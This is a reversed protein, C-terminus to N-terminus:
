LVRSQGLLYGKAVYPLGNKFRVKVGDITIAEGIFRYGDGHREIHQSACCAGDMKRWRADALGMAEIRRMVGGGVGNELFGASKRPDLDNFGFNVSVGLGDGIVGDQFLDFQLDCVFGGDALVFLAERGSAAFAIDMYTELDRLFDEPHGSYRLSDKRSLAFGLRVPTQPRGAMVGVYHPLWAEPANTFAAMATSVRDGFGTIELFEPVFAEAPMEPPPLIYLGPTPISDPAASLDFSYGCDYKGWGPNEGCASFFRQLSPDGEGAFRVPSSLDGCIYGVLLDMRPKGTFPFEFDYIAMSVDTLAYREIAAVSKEFSDTGFLAEGRGDAAAKGYLRRFAHLTDMEKM